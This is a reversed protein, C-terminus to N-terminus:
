VLIGPQEPTAAPEEFGGRGPGVTIGGRAHPETEKTESPVESMPAGTEPEDPCTDRSTPAATIWIIEARAPRNM